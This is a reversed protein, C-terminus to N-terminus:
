EMGRESVKTIKASARTPMVGPTKPAIFGEGQPEIYTEGPAVGPRDNFVAYITYDAVPMVEIENGAADFATIKADVVRVPRSGTNKWDVYIMVTDFGTASRFPEVRVKVIEVSGGADSQAGGDPKNRESSKDGSVSGFALFVMVLLAATSWLHKPM